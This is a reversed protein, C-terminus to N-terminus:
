ASTVGVGRTVIEITKGYDAPFGDVDQLRGRVRVRDTPLVEGDPVDKLSAPAAFVLFGDIPVEGRTADSTSTRPVVRCGKVEIPEGAVVDGFRDPKGDRIVWISERRM